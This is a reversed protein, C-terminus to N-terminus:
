DFDLACICLVAKNFKVVYTKKWMGEEAEVVLFSMDDKDPPLSLDEHDEIHAKISRQSAYVRGCISCAFKHTIQM